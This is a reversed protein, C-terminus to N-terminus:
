RRASVFRLRISKSIDVAEEDALYAASVETFPGYAAVDGAEIL